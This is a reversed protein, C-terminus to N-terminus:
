PLKPRDIGPSPVGSLDRLSPFRDNYVLAAAIVGGIIIPALISTLLAIAFQRWFAGATKVERVIADQLALRERAEIEDALYSRAAADFFGAAQTRMQGFQSDTLNGIWSEVDAVSPPEGHRQEYHRIWERREHAFLAYTIFALEDPIEEDGTLKEFVEQDSTPM